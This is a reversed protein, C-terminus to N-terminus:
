TSKQYQSTSVTSISVLEISVFRYLLYPFSFFLWSAQFSSCRASSSFLSLFSLHPWPRGNLIRRWLRGSALDAHAALGPRRGGVEAIGFDTYTCLCVVSTGIKSELAWQMRRVAQRLGPPVMHSAGSTCRADQPRGFADLLSRSWWSSRHM